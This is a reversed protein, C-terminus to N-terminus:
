FDDYHTVFAMNNNCTYQPPFPKLLSSKYPTPAQIQCAKPYFIKGLPSNWAKCPTNNWSENCPLKHSTNYKSSNISNPSPPTQTRNNALEGHTNRLSKKWIQV